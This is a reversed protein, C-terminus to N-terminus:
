APKYTPKYEIHEAYLRLSGPGYATLYGVIRVNLDRKCKQHVEILSAGLKGTALCPMTTFCKVGDYYRHFQLIFTVDDGGNGDSDDKVRLVQGELIVSNLSNHVTNGDSDTM